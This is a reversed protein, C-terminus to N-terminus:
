RVAEANVPAEVRAIVDTVLEELTLPQFKFGVLRCSEQVARAFAPGFLHALQEKVQPCVSDNAMVAITRLLDRATINRAVDHPFKIALDSRWAATSAAKARIVDLHIVSYDKTLNLNSSAAENCYPLRHRRNGASAVPLVRM